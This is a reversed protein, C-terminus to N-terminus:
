VLSFRCSSIEWCPPVAHISSTISSPILHGICNKFLYAFLHFLCVYCPGKNPGLLGSNITSPRWSCKQQQAGMWGRWVEEWAMMATNWKTERGVTGRMKSTWFGLGWPNLIPWQLFTALLDESFSELIIGVSANLAKWEMIWPKVCRPWLSKHVQSSGNSGWGCSSFSAASLAFSPVM